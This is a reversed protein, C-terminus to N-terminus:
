RFTRIEFDLNLRFQRKEEAQEYSNWIPPRIRRRRLKAFSAFLLGVTTLCNPSRRLSRLCQIAPLLLGVGLAFGLPKVVRLTSRSSEQMASWETISLCKSLNCASGLDNVSM